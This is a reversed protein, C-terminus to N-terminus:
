TDKRMHGQTGYRMRNVNQESHLNQHVRGVVDVHARAFDQKLVVDGGIEDLPHAVCRSCSGELKPQSLCRAHRKKHM